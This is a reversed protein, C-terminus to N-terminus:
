KPGFKVPGKPAAKKKSSSSVDSLLFGGWFLPHKAKPIDDSPLLKVRSEQGPTIPTGKALVVSRQWAEAASRNPLEQVFERILDYSTQGGSQWRTLLVTRTGNAMMGCLSFFIEQGTGKTKLSDEAPTHFGPLVVVDPAGWPLPFWSQLSSGPKGQDVRAVSLDYLALNKKKGEINDFVILYDWLPVLLASAAPLSKPGTLAVSGPLTQSLKKFAKQGMKEGDKLTLKGLVVAVRPNVKQGRGDPVILGATPAYRIRVKSLLSSYEGNEEIQLSEFPVYWLMGDPVIVLEDFRSWFEPTANKTLDKLLQAAPKKWADDALQATDFAHGKRFHGMKRLVTVLEGQVKTPSEFAWQTHKSKSFLFAYVFRPTAYFVLALQRDGLSARIENTSRQPPFTFESPSRGMAIARLMVEQANSLQAWQVLLQKQKRIADGEKPSLPLAELQKRVARAKVSLKQYKPFKVLLDQRQLLGKKSLADQPAELIWRLALLRGGMPLTSYFRHRRVRDAIWMAKEYAKRKIALIFWQELVEENPTLTVTLTEMPNIAWDSAGPERLVSDFLLMARRNTVAGSAYLQRVQAIHFLWLSAKKQYTMAASLAVNGQRLNGQQYAVLASTYQFRGGINGERMDRRGIRQRAQKLLATANRTDNILAYNEAGLILISSYLMRFRQRHVWPVAQIPPQYVGKQNTVLFIMQGYRFAEEIVDAQEYPVAAFTAELFLTSATAYQKQAFALKGLELLATATLPHDYIGQVVLAGKLFQAAKAPEGAGAYAVGLEIDAWAQSWHRTPAIPSELATVLRKTLKSRACTPGMLENRRRIALVTCRVIEEPHIPFLVPKIAIGGHKAIRENNLNGRLISMRDPFLGLKSKRASVGWTIKRRVTSASPGIRPPFKVRMMWAKNAIFLRIAADYQELALPLEGMHYYCEGKMTHYCISDIWRGETSRIGGREVQRFARLARKYDGDYFPIMARYYEDRPVIRSGPQAKVNSSACVMSLFLGTSIVFLGIRVFFPRGVASTDRHVM